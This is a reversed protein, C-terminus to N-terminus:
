RFKVLGRIKLLGRIFIGPVRKLGITIRSSDETISDISANIYTSSDSLPINSDTTILYMFGETGTTAAVLVTTGTNTIRVDNGSFAVNCTASTDDTDFDNFGCDSAVAITPTTGAWFTQVNVQDVFDGAAMSAAAGGVNKLVNQVRYKQNKSLSGCTSQWSNDDTLSTSCILTGNDWTNVADTTPTAGAWIEFDAAGTDWSLDATAPTEETITFVINDMLNRSDAGNNNGSATLIYVRVTITTTSAQQGSDISKAGDTDRTSWTGSPAGPDFATELDADPDTINTSNASDYIMLGLSQVAAHTEIPHSYDFKGDVQTVINGATVGLNEWTFTKSFYGENTKNKGNTMDNFVSGAPNGDAGDFGETSALGGNDVISTWTWSNLDSDWSEVTTVVARAEQVKWPGLPWGSFIWVFIVLVVVTGRLIKFKSERIM